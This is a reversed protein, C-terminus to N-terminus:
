GGLLKAGANPEAPDQSPLGEFPNTKLPGMGNAQLLKNNQGEAMSAKVAEGYKSAGNAMNRLSNGLSGEATQKGYQPLKGAFTAVGTLTPNASFTGTTIGATSFLSTSQSVANSLSAINDATVGNTNIDDYVPGGAVSHLFDRANPVGNVGSGSGVLSKIDPINDNMLSKLDPHAANTKPTDVTKIGGFFKSAVGANAISGAGLDNFKSTLADTGAFGATDTPNALKTYDSLDKLGQIGTGTQGQIQESGFSGGQTSYGTTTPFGTTTPAGFTNTGATPVTTATPASASSGFVNQTNYLSADSGTYSPLGAFPNNINMQEATVNIATPDKIGGLVQAIQDKYVPNELDNLDVGAAVLKQNVGTANALKNNQLAQVMGVPSGFNKASIGNFMTGTSEIAKGAGPLSGLINTFGRDSMSGLDKIGTGFDSYSSNSLFNSTNILSHSTEIHGQVQGVISGFGAQDAPNFINSQLNNLNTLASQAATYNPDSPSVNALAAKAKTVTPSIALAEGKKMGVMATITAPSFSTAPEGVANYQGESIVTVAKSLGAVGTGGETTSPAIDAGITM